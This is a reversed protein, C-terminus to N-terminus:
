RRSRIAAPARTRRVGGSAGVRPDGRTEAQPAKPARCRRAPWVSAHPHASSGALTRQGRPHRTPISAPSSCSCPTCASRPAKRSASSRRSASAPQANLVREVDEPFVNLGEPTVIMEKKRGKIFLRGQADRRASTAPTCGATRTSSRAAPGPGARRLVREHRERRPRPDRRGRRDEGRRRRDAHRGIGQQDQVSPEAHRDARDRHARIGPDRRLGAAALVGRPGAALPAAGVVFAWFKLGFARHVRRYRWWRRSDLHRRRRPEAGGSDRARRARAPVDLIKPVCVLVSVRRSKIQRVIDHPNFSRTFIVTGRVMPPINTAMSQGFMHSLPLLNLFRLPLFPRAYKRYKMCRANSRCSTPSCTAIASSSARRSPPPARRSSSRRSTTARRDARGADARRGGTSTPSGGSTSPPRWPRDAADVDDGRSSSRAGRRHGRGQARLRGVLSLRDPRRRHRRAPLGLLLRDMRAPERGLLRGQRGQRARGDRAPRCLRAGRPRRGRLQAVGGTATTTVLFEGRITTSTAFSTSSRTGACRHIIIRLGQGSTM